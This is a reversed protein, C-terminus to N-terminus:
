ALLAPFRWSERVPALSYDPVPTPQTVYQDWAQNEHIFSVLQCFVNVVFKTSSTCSLYYPPLSFGVVIPQPGITPYRSITELDEYPISAISIDQTESALAKQFIGAVRFGITECAVKVINSAGASANSACESRSRDAIHLYTLPIFM